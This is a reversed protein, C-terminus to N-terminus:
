PLIPAAMDAQIEAATLPRNYVWVEDIQGSFYEGWVSNGGIRLAGNSQQIVGPLALSSVQVGNVFLRLVAGDYTAALHTWTNLPVAQTGFVIGIGGPTRVVAANPVNSGSHAYLDYIEDGVGEKMMVTRFTGAGLVTPNVWAELTMGTTLDLDNADAVTVWANTGNFSLARGYKGTTTRTAGSITGTHGKGTADVVTTGSAENFGYAAVLGATPAPAVSFAITFDSTNPNSALDQCRVFFSYSGGNTLGTVTTAHATGGTTTFASTMAAYAIGATTAYRCTANEDTTLSLSAQMTGAALTGSPAGASRGPPTTDVPQAVSFAIPFDNTNPNSALDQCRVFFSYSGGNTLGTVTTAHATGGTTTFASTMAAYAIGATTAYRCTANEDTTLSLSAQTTGAALMGSPAGASRGPPTTDVPQAVSFVIPFDNTNPNNALDQCRVFFSYSSGDVLGTILVSHSTGGTAAFTATMAGYAVGSTTAYRCTAAEDTALSIPTDTTGAPIIGAPQGNSRMPPTLDVTSKVITFSDRVAGTSDLFVADLRGGDVDLVMSGLTNLSILMAPHNLAGGSTTGSSGAVAYVAGERPAKVAAPKQYAGTGSERGDGGDLIMAPTLTSSVGYHGDLLFSREYSHSHGTLVLDVGAAELIPLANQRMQVSEVDADSNHSGKSYPPHHWFAIIWPQTTAALDNRLWTMMPGPASRDTEFSELSIFHINGYDFSYYAETGSAIGGAQGQTPLSFIDYYPGTQTSSNAAQGDHNGYTPWLVSKQLMSPYMDFVAGQHEADTGDQYANDGLMLWLDTHRAATYAFYADRVARANADATGSDGLVWVRTPKPTGVVPATVFFYTPDGGALTATPTGVAYYYRTDPALGALRVEHESTSPALDVVGTLATPDAGYRVRSASPLNTRWRVVVDTSSGMQLYPGRTVALASTTGILELDFSLDSSSASSQHVEVALVNAGDLLTGASLTASVFTNEGAGSIATSALTRYGITGAPMNSRFVEVGNLYVVAGDDRLLRLTLASFATRDVVTFARRFYTTIYKNSASPGFRVVTAEGGDGYGLQAPGSAWAGDNFTPARWATGQNSGNDLYRWVAGTPVLVTQADVAAPALLAILLVVAPSVLFRARRVHAVPVTPKRVASM